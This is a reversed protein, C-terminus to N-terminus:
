ENKEIGISLSAEGQGMLLAVSIKGKEAMLSGGNDGMSVLQTKFGKAKLDKEYAALAGASVEKLIMTWNQVEDSKHITAGDIKGYSFVPIEPPIEVPWSHVDADYSMTVDGSKITGSHSELDVDAPSGTNKEIANELLKEAPRESANRCSSVMCVMVIAPMIGARFKLRNDKTM